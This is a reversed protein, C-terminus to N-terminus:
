VLKGPGLPTQAMSTRSHLVFFFLVFFFSSLCPTRNKIGCHLLENVMHIDLKLMRGKLFDQSFELM